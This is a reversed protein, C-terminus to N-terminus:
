CKVGGEPLLAELGLSRSGKLFVAGTFCALRGRLQEMDTDLHILAAPVGRQRLGDAYHGAMAGVLRFETGGHLPLGLATQRHWFDSREGLENMTGLVYLHPQDPFLNVFRRASDLMSGPNANYCDVYYLTGGHRITEGRQRLPRWADLCAQITTCPVGLHLAVAVVLALNSVMGPSAAHFPFIGPTMPPQTALEGM